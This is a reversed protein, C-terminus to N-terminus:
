PLEIRLVSGPYYLIGWTGNGNDIPSINAENVWSGNDDIYGVSVSVPQQWTSFYNTTGNDADSLAYYDNDKNVILGVAKSTTSFAFDKGNVSKTQAYNDDPVFTDTNYGVMKNTPAPAIITSIKNLVGYLRKTSDLDYKLAYSNGLVWNRYDNVQGESADKYIGLPYGETDAIQWIDYFGGNLLATLALTTTNGYGGSNEAIYRYKSNTTSIIQATKSPQIDYPDYGIADVNSLPVIDADDVNGGALNIRTAVVYDSNKVAGGLQNLLDLWLGRQGNQWSPNVSPENNLQFFIVRHNVDYSALHNFLATVANREAQFLFQADADHPGGDPLWPAYNSNTTLGVGWYKGQDQVYAPVTTGNKYGNLYAGGTGNTGFWALDLRLGYQNAWDVYKDIITWDYEGQNAPEINSWPFIVSATKINVQATKEYYNEEFSLPNPPGMAALNFRGVNQIHMDLYPKGDVELYGKGEPSVVVRSVVTAAKAKQLPIFTFVSVLVVCVTLFACAKKLM